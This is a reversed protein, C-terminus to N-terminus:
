TASKIGSRKNTPQINENSVELIHIVEDLSTVVYHKYGMAEIECKFVIQEESLNQKKDRKVEFFVCHGKKFAILDATGKQWGMNKYHKIFAFRKKGDIHGLAAMIDTCVVIWKQLRLYEVIQHQIKHETLKM